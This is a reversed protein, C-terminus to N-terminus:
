LSLIKVNQIVEGNISISDVFGSAQIERLRAKEQNTIHTFRSTESGNPPKIFATISLNVTRGFQYSGGDLYNAGQSFGLVEANTLDISAM